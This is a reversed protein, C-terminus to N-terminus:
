KAQEALRLQLAVVDSEKFRRHGGATRECPLYPRNGNAPVPQSWRTVTKPDVAFRAAVEAPTMLRDDTM